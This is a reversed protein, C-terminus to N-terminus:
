CRTISRTRPSTMCRNLANAAALAVLPDDDDLVTRLKPISTRAQMDGLAAAAAARIEPKDSDLGDEAFALAKTDNPVLGLVRVATAHAGTKDDACADDLM